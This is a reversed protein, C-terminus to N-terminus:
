FVFVAQFSSQYHLKITFEFHSSENPGHPSVRYETENQTVVCPGLTEDNKLYSFLCTSM